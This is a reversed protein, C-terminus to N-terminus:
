HAGPSGFVRDPFIMRRMRRLIAALSSSLRPSVEVSASGATTSSNISFRAAPYNSGGSWPGRAAQSVELRCKSDRDRLALARAGQEVLNRPLKLGFPSHFAVNRSRKEPGDPGFHALRRLPRCIGHGSQPFHPDRGGIRLNPVGGDPRCCRYPACLM